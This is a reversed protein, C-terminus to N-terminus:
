VWGTTTVLMSFTNDSVVSGTAARRIRMRVSATAERTNSTAGSQSPLAMSISRTTGLSVWAPAPNTLTYSDGFPSSATADFQVEYDSAVGSRIWTGSTPAPVTETGRSTNAGVVWGGSNNLSVSISASVNTQNTLARDDSVFGRGDLGTIPASLTGTAAFITNLDAGGVKLGTAAAATGQEIPAYRDSLDVGGVQYGTAPKKTGSEYAAFITDLDVGGSQYNAPM